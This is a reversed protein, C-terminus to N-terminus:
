IGRRQNLKKLATELAPGLRSEPQADLHKLFNQAEDNGVDGLAAIAAIQLPVSKAKQAVQLLLPASEAIGMRGCLQLATIRSLEGCREDGAMKLAAENLKKQDLESHEPALDSLALLATGAISSDTEEVAQWLVQQLATKEEVSARAYVPTIHQVAYDRMVIDQAPDQYIKVLVQSLGVPLASADALKDMMGNRLWNEQTRNEANSPAPAQLYVFLTQVDNTTLDAPLARLNNVREAFSTSPSAAIIPRLSETVIIPPAVTVSSPTAPPTVKAPSVQSNNGVPELIQPSSHRFLVGLSGTVIVAGLVVAIKVGTKM